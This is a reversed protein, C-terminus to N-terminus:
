DLSSAQGPDLGVVRAIRGDPALELVNTGRARVSGDPGAAEWEVLAVGQCHRPAGRRRMALGPMHTQAAAIWADLDDRGHICAMADCLEVDESTCAKLRAKRSAADGDAWALFWADAHQAIQAHQEQAVLRAFIGLQYRWGPVHLDRADPAAFAHTLKLTTGDRTDSLELTVRSAGPAIPQGSAYGYTFVLLREAQLELVEGSALVGNPYRIEVAGGPRAEIRSGAGWWAAFRTSDTLQRWVTARRARIVITRELAHPLPTM